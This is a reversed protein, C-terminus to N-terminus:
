DPSNAANRHAIYSDLMGKVNGRGVPNGSHVEYQFDKSMFGTDLDREVIWKVVHMADKGDGLDHDFSAFIPMGREEIISVAEDATRAAVWPGLHETEPPYPHMGM